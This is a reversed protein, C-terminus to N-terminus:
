PILRPADDPRSGRNSRRPRGAGPSSTAALLRGSEELYEGPRVRRGDVWRHVRVLRGGAPASEINDHSDPQDANIGMVKVAFSARETALKWLDSSLGGMVQEASLPVGLDFAHATERLIADM